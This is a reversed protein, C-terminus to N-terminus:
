RQGGQGPKQQGGGQGPKPTGPKPQTAQRDDDQEGGM